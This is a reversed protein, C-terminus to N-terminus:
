PTIVRTGTNQGYFTPDAIKWLLTPSPPCLEEGEPPCDCPTQTARLADGAVTIVQAVWFNEGTFTLKKPEVTVGETDTGLEVTVAGTPRRWLSFAYRNGGLSRCFAANSNTRLTRTWFMTELGIGIASTEIQSLGQPLVASGTWKLYVMAAFMAAAAETPEAGQYVPASPFARIWRAVALPFPMWNPKLSDVKLITRLHVLETLGSDDKFAPRTYLCANTAGAPASFTRFLGPLATKIERDKTYHLTLKRGEAEAFRQLWVGLAREFSGDYLVAHFDASPLLDYAGLGLSLRDGAHLADERLAFGTRISTILASAVEEHVGPFPPLPANAGRITLTLGAAQVYAEVVEGKPVRGYYFTDDTYVQRWVLPLPAFNCNSGVALRAAEALRHRNCLGGMKYVPKQAAVVIPRPLHKPRLSSITTIALFGLGQPETHSPSILLTDAELVAKRSATASPDNIWASLYAMQETVLQVPEGVMQELVKAVAPADLPTGEGVIWAVKAMLCPALVTMLAFLLYRLARASM